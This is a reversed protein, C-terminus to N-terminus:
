VELFDKSFRLILYRVFNGILPCVSVPFKYKLPHILWIPLLAQAQRSFTIYIGILLPSGLGKKAIEVTKLLTSVKLLMKYECMFFSKLLIEERYNLM